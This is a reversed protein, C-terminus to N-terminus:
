GRARSVKSDQAFTDCEYHNCDHMVFRERSPLDANCIENRMSLFYNTICKYSSYSVKAGSIQEFPNFNSSTM